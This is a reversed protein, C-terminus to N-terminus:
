LNKKVNSNQCLPMKDTVQLDIVCLFRKEVQHFSNKALTTKEVQCFSNKGPRNIGCVVLFKGIRRADQRNSAAQKNHLSEELHLKLEKSDHHGFCLM